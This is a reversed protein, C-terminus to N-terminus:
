IICYVGFKLCSFQARFSAIYGLCWVVLSLGLHHLIDM